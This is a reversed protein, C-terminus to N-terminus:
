INCMKTMKTPKSRGTNKKDHEQSPKLWLAKEALVLEHASHLKDKNYNINNLCVVFCFCGPRYNLLHPITSINIPVPLLIGTRFLRIIIITPM